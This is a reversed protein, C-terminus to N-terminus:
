VVKDTQGEGQGSLDIREVRRHQSREIQGARERIGHPVKIRGRGCGLHALPILDDGLKAKLLKDPSPALTVHNVKYGQDEMYKKAQLAAQVHGQHIPSFSGGFIISVPKDKPPMEGSRDRTQEPAPSLIATM